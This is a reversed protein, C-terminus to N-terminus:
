HIYDVRSRAIYLNNNVDRELRKMDGCKLEDALLYVYVIKACNAYSCRKCPTV